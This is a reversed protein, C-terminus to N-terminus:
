QVAQGLRRWRLGDSKSASFWIQRAKGVIDQLPVTSFDRSDKSVSRNDGLMFAQGPPVTLGIDPLPQPGDWRVRWIRGDSEETVLSQGTTGTEANVTLAKGNVWVTEGSIKIEDGPLGIIRKIYYETRNNPYVFIAVDGRRLATACGPCNYRMDAFLIDGPLLGPEMSASPIRFSAVQHARVAGTLMPLALVNCLLFILVYVGSVQWDRLVYDQRQRAVHRADAMGYLWLSLVLVLGILLAPLMMFRPLYLAILDPGPVLLVAFALFFWIAKNLEGNYFQGFGPLVFSLLVAKAPSRPHIQSSLSV